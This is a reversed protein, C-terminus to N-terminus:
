KGLRSGPGVQVLILQLIKLFALGKIGGFRSFWFKQLLAKLHSLHVPFNSVWQM